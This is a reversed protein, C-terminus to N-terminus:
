DAAYFHAARACCAPLPPPPLREWRLFVTADSLGVHTIAQVEEQLSSCSKLDLSADTFSRCVSPPLSYVIVKLISIALSGKGGAVMLQLNSPHRALAGCLPLLRLIRDFKDIDDTKNGGNMVRRLEDAMILFSGGLSHFSHAVPAICLISSLANLALSHFVKPAFQLARQLVAIAGVNAAIKCSRIRVCPHIAQVSLITNLMRLAKKFLKNDAAYIFMGTSSIAGAGDKMIRELIRVIINLPQEQGLIWADNPHQRQLLLEYLLEISQLANKADDDKPAEFNLPQVDLGGDNLVCNGELLQLQEAGMLTLSEQLSRLLAASTAAHDSLVNANLDERSQVVVRPQIPPLRVRVDEELLQHDELVSGTDVFGFYPLVLWDAMDMGVWADGRAWPSLNATSDLRKLKANPTKPKPSMLNAIGATLPRFSTPRQQPSAVAIHKLHEYIPMSGGWWCALAAVVGQNIMDVGVDDGLLVLLMLIKLLVEQSAPWIWLHSQQPVSPQSPAVDQAQSKKKSLDVSIGLQQSLTRRNSSHIVKSSASQVRAKSVLLFASVHWPQLRLTNAEQLRLLMGHVATLAAVCGAECRASVAADLLKLFLSDGFPQGLRVPMQKLVSGCAIAAAVSLSSNPNSISQCAIDIGGHQWFLLAANDTQCISAVANWAQSLDSCEQKSAAIDSLRSIAGMMSALAGGKYAAFKWEPGMEAFALIGLSVHAVTDLRTTEAAKLITAMAQSKSEFSEKTNHKPLDQPHFMHVRKKLRAAAAAEEEARKEDFIDTMKRATTPKSQTRRQSRIILQIAFNICLVTICLM